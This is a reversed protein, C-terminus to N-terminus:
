MVSQVIRAGEAAWEEGAGPAPLPMGYIKCAATSAYGGKEVDERSAIYGVVGNSTAAIMLHRDPAAERIIQGLRTFTEAGLGVFVVDGCAVAQIEAAMEEALSGSDLIHIMREYWIANVRQPGDAVHTRLAARAEGLATELEPREPLAPQLPVLRSAARIPGPEWAVGSSAARRFAAALDRGYIRVTEPTGHVWPGSRTLPNVDGCCGNLYLARIGYANMEAM